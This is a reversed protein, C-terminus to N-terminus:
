PQDEPNPAPTAAPVPTPTVEPAPTPAIGVRKKEPNGDYTDTYLFISEQLDSNLYRDVYVDVIFGSRAEATVQEEGVYLKKTETIEAEGPFIEQIIVSRQKYSIGEPLAEGYILVTLDRKRSSSKANKSIYAFVYLPYESKNTFKFDIHGSDVTADLGKEVYTSPISHKKRTFTVYPYCELLANYLTSSVQCVGGGLQRSYRDGGFIGNAEKWGAGQQNRDGVTDNFSWTRGPKVVQNNILSAAKEVNAARNPILELRQEETDEATGKFDYTTTFSGIQTTHAQVDAVTVSPEIRTIAPEITTQYQGQEFAKEVLQATSDVDIGYGAQGEVYNFEPKGNSSFAVTFSADTPPSTLTENIEDIRTALSGRDLSYATYYAQGSTGSLAQKLVDDLNSTVAMDSGTITKAFGDGKLTIAINNIAYDENAQLANRVEDITKGSVDTYNVYVGSRFTDTAEDVVVPEDPNCSKVIVMIATIFLALLLASAGFVVARRRQLKKKRSGQTRKTSRVPRQAAAYYEDADARDIRGTNGSSRGAPYTSKTTDPLGSYKEYM